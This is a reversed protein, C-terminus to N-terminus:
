ASARKWLNEAVKQADQIVAGMDVRTPMCDRVLWEGAVMVDTVNAASGSHVVIGYGDIVPRLNPAHPDLLILDAPSGISLTGSAAHGKLARAADVTGWGFVTKADLVFEMDARLRATAIAM